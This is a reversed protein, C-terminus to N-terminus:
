SWIGVVNNLQQLAAPAIKLTRTEQGSGGYVFPYRFLQNDLVLPINLGMMPVSGVECGTIEKVEKRTALQAQKCGALNAIESFDVHERSGSFTVALFGKDTKLILTPATQGIEIAFYDAGQQATHIPKEHTILEYDYGSNKLAADLNDM